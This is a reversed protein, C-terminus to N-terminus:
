KKLEKKLQIYFGKYDKHVKRYDILDFQKGASEQDNLKLFSIAYMTRADESLDTDIYNEMVDSFYAKASSYEDKRYYFYGIDFDHQALVNRCKKIDSKVVPMLEHDPYLETFFNLERLAMKTIEQERSPIPLRRVYGQALYFQAYPRLPSNKFNDVFRRLQVIGSEFDETEIYSLGLFYVLSDVGQVGSFQNIRPSLKDIVKRYKADSVLQTVEQLTETVEQDVSIYQKSCSFSSIILIAVFLIKIFNKV